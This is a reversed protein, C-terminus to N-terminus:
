FDRRARLYKGLVIFRQQSIQRYNAVSRHQRAAAIASEAVGMEFRGGIPRRPAAIGALLAFLEGDPEPEFQDGIGPEDPKGIGAFRCKKGGLRRNM